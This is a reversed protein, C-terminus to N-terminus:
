SAQVTSSGHSQAQQHLCAHLQHIGNINANDTRGILHIGVEPAHWSVETIMKTVDGSAIADKFGEASCIDRVLRAMCHDPQEFFDADLPARKGDATVKEALQRM